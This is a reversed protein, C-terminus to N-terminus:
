SETEQDSRESFTTHMSDLKGNEKLLSSIRETECTLQTSIVSRCYDISYPFKGHLQEADAQLQDNEAQAKGKDVLLEGIM